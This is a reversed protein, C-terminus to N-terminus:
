NRRRALSLRHRIVQLKDEALGVLRGEDLYGSRIAYVFVDILRSYRYIFMDDIAQRTQRLFDEINWMDSPTKVAGAKARFDTMAKALASQLAADFARHAVEKESSSWTSESSM